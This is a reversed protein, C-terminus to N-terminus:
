GNDAGHHRIRLNRANIAVIVTSLSMLAAGVAPSLVVGRHLLVGAALPIAIVNYGAAWWLNQLMRAYTARSLELLTVVDRPNSRVLVVDATEIAVDAGTGIAIGLDAAALAPADNVGDGVMAIREGALRAAEVKSAKEHPLVQAQYRDLGLETSVWRAVPETDGTLLMTRIGRAHLEQVAARADPKIQDALVIAGALARDVV